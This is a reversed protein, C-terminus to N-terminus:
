CFEFRDSLPSQVVNQYIKFKAQMSSNFFRYAYQVGFINWQFHNIEGNPRYFTLNWVERLMFNIKWEFLIHVKYDVQIFDDPAEFWLFSFILILLSDCQFLEWTM